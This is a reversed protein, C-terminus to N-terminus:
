MANKEEKSLTLNDTLNATFCDFQTADRWRTEQHSHTGIGYGVDDDVIITEEVQLIMKGFWGKRYRYNGTLMTNYKEKLEICDFYTADRWTSYWTTFNKDADVLVWEEVQLLRKGWWTRKYRTNGSLKKM